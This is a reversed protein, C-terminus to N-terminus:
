LASGGEPVPAADSHLAGDPLADPEALGHRVLYTVARKLRACAEAMRVGIVNSFSVRVYGSMGCSNGPVLMVGFHKVLFEVTIVDDSCAGPLKIWFYISFGGVVSGPPLAGLADLVLERNAALGMINGRMYEGGSTLAALAAHQAPQNVCIAMTDQAKLLQSYLPSAGGPASYAIYGVRWGM